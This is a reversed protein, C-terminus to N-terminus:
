QVLLQKVVLDLPCSRAYICIKPLTLIISFLFSALRFNKFFRASANCANNHCIENWLIVLYLYIRIILYIVAKYIYGLM